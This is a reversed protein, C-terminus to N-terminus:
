DLAGMGDRKRMLYRRVADDTSLGMAVTLAQRAEARRGARMLLEGQAAWFPQYSAMRKDAALPAITDLAKAPGEIEALAM